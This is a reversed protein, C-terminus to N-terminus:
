PYIVDIINDSAFYQTDDHLQSHILSTGAPIHLLCHHILSMQPGNELALRPRHWESSASEIPEKAFWTQSTRSTEWYEAWPLITM